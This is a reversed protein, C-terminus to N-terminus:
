AALATNLQHDYEADADAHEDCLWDHLAVLEGDTMGDLDGELPEPDERLKRLLANLDEHLVTVRERLDARLDTVLKVLNEIPASVPIVGDPDLAVAAEVLDRRRYEDMTRVLRRAATCVAEHKFRSPDLVKELDFKGGNPLESPRTVGLAELVTERSPAQTFVGKSMRDLFVLTRQM